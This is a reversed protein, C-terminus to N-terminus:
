IDGTGGGNAASALDVDNTIIIAGHEIYNSIPSNYNHLNTDNESFNVDIIIDHLLYFNLGIVFIILIKFLMGFRSIKM